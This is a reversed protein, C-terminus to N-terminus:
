SQFEVARGEHAQLPLRMAGAHLLRHFFRNLPDRTLLRDHVRCSAGIGADVGQAHSHVQVNGLVDGWEAQHFREVVMQPGIRNGHQVAHFLRVVPVRPKGAGPPGIEVANGVAARRQRQIRVAGPEHGLGQICLRHVARGLRQDPTVIEGGEARDMALRLTRYLRQVQEAHLPDALFHLDAGGRATEQVM